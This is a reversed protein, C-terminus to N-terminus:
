TLTQTSNTIHISINLPCCYLNAFSHNIYEEFLSYKHMSTIIKKFKLLLKTHTEIRFKCIIIDMKTRRYLLSKM